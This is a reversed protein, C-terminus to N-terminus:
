FINILRMQDPGYHTTSLSLAVVTHLWPSLLFWSDEKFTCTTDKRMENWLPLMENGECSLNAIHISGLHPLSWSSIKM